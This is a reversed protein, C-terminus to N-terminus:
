QSAEPAILRRVSIRVGPRPLAEPDENPYTKWLRDFGVVRADDAWVGADTLADETARLIKSLDPYKDPYIRRRKPASAPKHLTFVMRAVLPGDLPDTAGLMLARYNCAAVVAARWPKVFKSSEVLLHRGGRLGLCKKSGQPAPAGFVEVFYDYRPLGPTGLDLDLVTM